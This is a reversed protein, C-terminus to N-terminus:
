QSGGLSAMHRLSIEMLSAFIGIDALKPLNRRKAEVPGEWVFASNMDRLAIPLKRPEWSSITLSKLCGGNFAISQGHMIEERNM